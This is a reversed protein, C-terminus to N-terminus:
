QAGIILLFLRHLGLDAAALVIGVVASLAIVIVTMNRAERFTPWTVKYRLEYYAEYLFRGIRNNRLRKAFSNSGKADRRVASKSEQKTPERRRTERAAAKVTKETKEAKVSQSTSTTEDAAAKVAKEMRGTKVSQSTPTTEDAAAKVTKEAKKAKVSQSTPTTRATTARGTTKKRDTMNKAV